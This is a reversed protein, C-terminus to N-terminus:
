MLQRFAETRALRMAVAVAAIANVHPGGQEGPFVAADLKRAVEPDTAILVAARPGCLTKHTTFSTVQAIGVPNPYCGAAILGAPHAVDALLICGTGAAEAAARLQKWDVSWPYASYGAILLRPKEAAALEQIKGYDLRGTGPDMRYPVIRYRKGSRNVPSGHTLHGGGSLEMGMVTDGPNLFAEYVANNAAAGSLPQVNVRLREPPFDATAFVEATRRIALAEVFDAFEVGKYYRKGSYRRYHALWWETDALHGEPSRAMRPHPYGEAYLSTLSCGLAERVAPPTISESAIMILKAAQRRDEAALLDALLPDAQRLSQAILKNPM